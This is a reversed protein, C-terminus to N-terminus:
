EIEYGCEACFVDGPPVEAGCHSCKRKSVAEEIELEEGIRCDACFIEGPQVEAGCHPCKMKQAAPQQQTNPQQSAAATQTATSIKTQSTPRASNASNSRSMRRFTSQLDWFFEKWYGICGFMGFGVCGGVIVQIIIPFGVDYWADIFILFVGASLLLLSILFAKM